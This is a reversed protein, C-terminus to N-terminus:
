YVIRIRGDQSWWLVTAGIEASIYRLPVLMRGNITYSQMDTGSISGSQSLYLTKNRYSIRATKSISNWQVTAGMREFVSRIPVMTSGQYLLPAPDVGATTGDSM